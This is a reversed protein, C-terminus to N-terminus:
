GEGAVWVTRQRAAATMEIRGADCVWWAALAQGRAIEAIAARGAVFLTKSWVEAWAPDRHAVTVALLGGEAPAGTAPDILHHAVRGAARWRNIRVSSTAVAADAVAIVALPGAGGAPDEVGIMWPGGEPAAGRAVIDGGAELLFSAGPYVDHVREAAWRLALGKGIGGLDVPRELRVGGTDLSIARATAPRAGVAGLPAGRYGLRDLDALVRADFRGGTMRRARDAAVLARRLRRSVRAPWDTGALRNVHTIESEDRFRSMAEDSSAFEAVVTQWALAAPAEGASGDPDPGLIALRLPSGMSRGAFRHVPRPAAAIM